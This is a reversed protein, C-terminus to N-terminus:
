QAKLTGTIEFQLAVGPAAKDALRELTARRAEREVYVVVNGGRLGVGSVGPQDILAASVRRKVAKLDDM